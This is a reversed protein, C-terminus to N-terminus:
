RIVASASPDFPNTRVALSYLYPYDRKLHALHDVWACLLRGYARTLDVSLHALDKDPLSELSPRAALEESVHLVAWLLDTFSDHELLTPNELLRLIFDQKRSLFDKLTDLAAMGSELKPESLLLSAKIGELERASWDASRPLRARMEGQDPAFRALMSLLGTGVESFFAGIVMNLKKLTARKERSSLLGNLILSVFLVQMPIFVVDMLLYYFLTRADGFILYHAFALLGFAALLLLALVLPWRNRTM